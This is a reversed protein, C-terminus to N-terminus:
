VYSIDFLSHSLIQMAALHLQRFYTCAYFYRSPSSLFWVNPFFFRGGGVLRITDYLRLTLAYYITRRVFKGSSACKAHSPRHIYIVSVLFLFLSFEAYTRRCMRKPSIENRYLKAGFYRLTIYLPGAFARRRPRRTMARHAARPGIRNEIDRM